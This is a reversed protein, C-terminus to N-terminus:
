LNPTNDLFRGLIEKVEKIRRHGVDYRQNHVADFLYVFIGANILEIYNDFRDDVFIDLKQQQAIEVKCGDVGVQFVPCAPFKNKDLWEETWEKPISRSTIYCTPEFPIDAPNTKVPLNVWFEKSKNVEDIKTRFDRDFHWSTPTDLKFRECFPGVFNALVDDIDLGIRYNSFYWNKRDDGQPYIQYYETLFAANCMIHSAHLLGSEKDFDQGLKIANLHRELSDLIKSWKMGLQWNHDGYKAAGMTLVKAFQEQAFGPILGHRTKGQNFRKGKDEM